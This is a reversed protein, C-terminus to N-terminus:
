TNIFDLFFENRKKDLSEKQYHHSKNYNIEAQSELNTMMDEILEALRNYDGCPFIFDRDILEFNGGIDSCVVPCARSMAEVIVRCLGEQYSPQVYVDISDLWDFVENHPKAGIFKVQNNLKLDDVLEHLRKGKGMGILEYIINTIGKDRLVALAKIVNEQGKWKVDLFAATGVRIVDSPKRNKIRNIRNKLLKDDAPQLVVDSCGLMKGNSPYRQQLAQETVYIAHSSAAAMKKFAREYYDASLKGALSHYWLGEKVLGAVELLYPKGQKVCEKYCEVTYFSCSRIIAKDCKAVVLALEKRVRNKVIPNVLNWKPSTIDDLACVTVKPDEPIANFRRTAEEITYTKKERRLVITLHDCLAMYRRWVEETFNPDTFWRGNEAQKLRSGGQIFLLNM